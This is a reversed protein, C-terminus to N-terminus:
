QNAQSVSTKADQLMREAQQESWKRASMEVHLNQEARHLQASLDDFAARSM